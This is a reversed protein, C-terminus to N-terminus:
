DDWVGVDSMGYDILAYAGFYVLVQAATAWAWVKLRKVYLANTRMEERRAMHAREMELGEGVPSCKCHLHLVHSLTVVHM